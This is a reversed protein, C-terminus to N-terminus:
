CSGRGHLRAMVYEVCQDLLMRSTDLVDCGRKKADQRLYHAWTMMQEDALEPQLRELCLRRRRTADDCDVLIPSVASIGAAEAAEVLFSLRTQGELLLGCGSKQLPALKVMWELTKARQWAEGSGCEAIMRDVTPVGIRDFYFVQVVDGYRQEIASAIATKGSGSAGILVVFRMNPVM